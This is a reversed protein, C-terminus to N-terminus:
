AFPRGDHILTPDRRASNIKLYEPSHHEMNGMDVVHGEYPLGKEELCLRV